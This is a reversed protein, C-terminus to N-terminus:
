DWGGVGVVSILGSCIPLPPSFHKVRLGGACVSLLWRLVSLDLPCGTRRPYFEDGTRASNVNRVGMSHQVPKVTTIQRKERIWGFSSGALGCNYGSSNLSQSVCGWRDM